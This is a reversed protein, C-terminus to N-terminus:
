ATHMGKQWVANIYCAHHMIWICTWPVKCVLGLLKCDWVFFMLLFSLLDHPSHFGSLLCLIFHYLFSRHFILNGQTRDTEEWGSELRCLKLFLQLGHVCTLACLGHFNPTVHTPPPHPEASIIKCLAGVFVLSPETLQLFSQASIFFLCCPRNLLLSFRYMRFLTCQCFSYSVVFKATQPDM